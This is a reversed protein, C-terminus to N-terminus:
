SVKSNSKRGQGSRWLKHSATQLRCKGKRAIGQPCGCNLDIADVQDELHKGASVLVEPDDGCFQAYLPRDELLIEM